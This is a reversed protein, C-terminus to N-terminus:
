RGGGGSDPRSGRLRALSALFGPDSVAIADAGRVVIAADAALAAVAFAMAVRHDGHSKVEGGSLRGGRVVLGSSQEEVSAGLRALGSAMAAIRDSEKVRLEAGDAFRTEGRAVAAAVALVPFEDIARLMLDGAIEAGHLEAAEVELDAVPEEGLAPCPRETIRAGMARLVDIAGTRTPNMAVAHVVLRSGPVISGAVLWFAAASPDGPVTVECATLEQPGQVVVVNERPRDLRVGFAPLLRETHDRSAGPEAVTTRGPTQLGALILATKVQASAIELRFEAPHLPRGHVTLPPRGETTDIRAGMRELPDVIRRMPRKRLSADGDLTATFPRPALLGTALRMTTGSNGCDLVREPAGLGAFGHGELRVVGDSREVRVGLARLVQMTSANDQGYGVGRVVTTGHAIGGFLLARHAISKDGPVEVSGVLPGAAPAIRVQSPTGDGAVGGAAGAPAGRAGPKATRAERLLAELGAADGGAAVRQLADLHRRVGALARAVAPANAILIDRWTEPSSAAVRTAGAFSPGAFPLPDPGAAASERAARVLAFALLHPVHSVLALIEDHTEPDMEVVDMGVAQWLERVRARADADTSSVPTLVCRAGSFLDASAAAAGSDETGAIPHSGVFRGRGALAAGCDRVVSAKVSGVDTVITDRGLHPAVAAATRALAAVPTALVVLDCGAVLAPDNGGRDLIGRALAVDLNARSRGVGVVEGVLNARRLALALSGGILGVGVVGMRGLREM